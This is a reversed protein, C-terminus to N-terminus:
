SAATSPKSARPSNGRVSSSRAFKRWGKRALTSGLRSASATSARSPPALLGASASSPYRSQAPYGISSAGASVRSLTSWVSAATARACPPFPRPPELLCRVTSQRYARSCCRSSGPSSSSPSGAAPEVLAGPLTHGRPVSGPAIGPVPATVAERVPDAASSARAETPSSGRVRETAGSADSSSAAAAPASRNPPSDPDSVIEYWARCVRATRVACSDGDARRASAARPSNPQSASASPCASSPARLFRMAASARTSATRVRRPAASVPAVSVLAAFVPATCADKVLTGNARDACSSQARAGVRGPPPVCAVGGLCGNCIDNCVGPASPSACIASGPCTGPCLSSMRRVLGSGSRPDPSLAPAPAPAPTTPSLEGHKSAGSLQPHSPRESRATASASSPKRSAAHRRSTLKRSPTEEPSGGGGPSGRGGPSRAGEGEGPSNEGGPSESEVVPSEGSDPDCTSVRSSASADPPPCEEGESIVNSRWQRLTMSGPQKASSDSAANPSTSTSGSAAVPVRTVAVPLRRVAGAASAAASATSSASQASLVHAAQSPNARQACSTPRRPDSLKRCSTRFGNPLCHGPEAREANLPAIVKPSFLTASRTNAIVEHSFSSAVKLAFSSTDGVCEGVGAGGAVWLRAIVVVVVVVLLSSVVLFSSVLALVDALELASTAAMASAAARAREAAAAASTPMALISRAGFGSGGTRTRPISPVFEPSTTNRIASCATGVSKASASALTHVYPQARSSIAREGSPPTLPTPPSSSPAPPSPPLPPPSPARPQAGGARSSAASTCASGSRASACCGAAPAGAWPGVVPAAVGAVVALAAEALDAFSDEKAPLSDDKFTQGATRRAQSEARRAVARVRPFPTAGGGSCACQM